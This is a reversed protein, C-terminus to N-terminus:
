RRGEAAREAAAWLLALVAVWLAIGTRDRVAIRAVWDSGLGPVGLIRELVLTGLLWVPLRAALWGPALARLALRRALRRAPVGGFAEPFPREAPLAQALWRLELPLSALLFALLWGIWGPPGWAAPWLGLLLLGWAVTPLAELAALGRSRSLAPGGLSALWPVGAAICALALGFGLAGQVPIGPAPVPKWVSGPLTWALALLAGWVGWGGLTKM